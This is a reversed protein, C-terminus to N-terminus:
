FYFYRGITSSTVHLEDNDLPTTKYLFHNLLLLNMKRFNITLNREFKIQNTM